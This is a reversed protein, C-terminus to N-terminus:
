SLALFLVGAVVIIAALLRPRWPREGFWLVGILAAIIVSSERIASVAGFPAIGKAYIALGYATASIIGGVGSLACDKLRFRGLNKRGLYLVVPFSFSEMFFLWGIYGLPSQSNRVGLGDVITYAAITVGTLCAFVIASTDSGAKDNFLVLIGIGFSILFIGAWAALPLFQGAFIVGGVAVLVPAVGRAIPYAHSLDGTRYSLLLFGYYFYHIVTSLFIFLWSAPAPPAYNLMLVLGFLGHGLNLLALSIVRDRAGKILANWFAHLFAASLVLALALESNPGM